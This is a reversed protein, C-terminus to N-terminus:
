IEIKHIKQVNVVTRYKKESGEGWSKTRLKGRVLVRQGKNMAAMKDCVNAWGELNVWEPNNVWEGADNKYSEDTAISVTAVQSTEGVLRVEPDAGLNGILEVRNM